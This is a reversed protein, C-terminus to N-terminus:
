EQQNPAPATAAAPEDAPPTSTISTTTTADVVRAQRLRELLGGSTTTSYCNASLGLSELCKNRSESALCLRHDFYELEMQKAGAKELERFWRLCLAARREWRCATQILGAQVVSISGGHRSAVETELYTRYEAIDRVINGFSKPLM